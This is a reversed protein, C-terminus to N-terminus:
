QYSSPIQVTLVIGLVHRRCEGASVAYNPEPVPQALLSELEAQKTLVCGSVM